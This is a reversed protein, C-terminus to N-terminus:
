INLWKNCIVQMRSFIKYSMWYCVAAIGLYIGSWFLTICLHITENDYDFSPFLDFFGWEALKMGGFTFILGLVIGTCATLIIPHKRYFTGGLTCFSHSLIALSWALCVLEWKSCFFLAQQPKNGYSANLWSKLASVTVSDHFGPTFYFSFALQILDAIISAICAMIISGVGMILLRAIFKEINTAPIMLFTARKFKDKMNFFICTSLAYFAGFSVGMPIGAMKNLFMEHYFQADSKIFFGLSILQFLFLITIVITLGATIGLYKKKYTSLDWHIVMELRHLDFTKNM